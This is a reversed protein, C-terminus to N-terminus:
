DDDSVSWPSRNPDVAAAESGDKVLGPIELSREPGLIRRLEGLAKETREKRAFRAKEIAESRLQWERWQEEGGADRIGFGAPMVMEASLKEYVATYEATLADVRAREDENLGPMREAAGLQPLASDSSRYIGPYTGRLRARRLDAAVSPDGAHAAFAADLTTAIEAIFAEDNKAAETNLRAWEASAQEVEARDRRAFTRELDQMRIAMDMRALVREPLRAALAGLESKAGELV